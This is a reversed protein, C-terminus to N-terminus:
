YRNKESGLVLRDRVLIEEQDALHCASALTKLETLYNDVQQDEQLSYSLLKLRQFVVNRSPIFYNTFMEM